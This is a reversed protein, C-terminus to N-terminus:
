RLSQEIKLMESVFTNFDDISCIWQHYEPIYKEGLRDILLLHKIEKDTLNPNDSKKRIYNLHMIKDTVSKSSWYTIILIVITLFGIIFLLLKM